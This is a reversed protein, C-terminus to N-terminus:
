VKLIPQMPVEDRRSINLEVQGGCVSTGRLMSKCGEHSNALFFDVRSHEHRNRQSLFHGGFVFSHHTDMTNHHEEELICPGM